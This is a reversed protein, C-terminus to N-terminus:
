FIITVYFSYVQYKVKYGSEAGYAGPNSYTTKTNLSNFDIKFKFYVSKKYLSTGYGVQTLLGPGNGKYNLEEFWIFQYRPGLGAFLINKSKIKKYINGSIEPALSIFGNKEGEVSRLALNGCAEIFILSHIYNMYNVTISLSPTSQSRTIEGFNQFNLGMGLGLGGSRIKTSSYEVNQATISTSFLILLLFLNKSKM